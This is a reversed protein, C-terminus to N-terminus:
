LRTWREDAIQYIKNRRKALHTGKKKIMAPTGVHVMMDVEGEEYYQHKKLTPQSITKMGCKSKASYLERYRAPICIRQIM